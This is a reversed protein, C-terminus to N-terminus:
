GNGTRRPRAILVAVTLVVVGIAAYEWTPIPTEGTTVFGVAAAPLPATTGNSGGPGCAVTCGGSIGPAAFQVVVTSQPPLEVTEGTSYASSSIQGGTSELYVEGSWTSPVVGALSVNEFGTVNANSILLSGDSSNTAGYDVWTEPNAGAGMTVNYIESIYLHSFLNAYLTFVDGWNSANDVMCTGGACNFRFFLVNPIDDELAQAIGASVFVAEGETGQLCESHFEHVGIPLGGGYPQADLNYATVIQTLQSIGLWNQITQPGGCQNISPNIHYALQNVSPDGSLLAPLWTTMHSPNGNSEIGVICAGPIISRVATTLNQADLAFQAATAAVNTATTWSAWPTNFDSWDEPENGISWCNPWWHGDHNWLWWMLATDVHVNNIEAPLGLECFDQPEEKCLMAFALPNEQLSNCVGASTGPTWMCGSTWNEQDIQNAGFRLYRIPTQNLLAIDGQPFSTGSTFVGWFDPTESAVQGNVTLTIPSTATTLGSSPSRSPEPSPGPLQVLLVVVLVVALLAHRPRARM